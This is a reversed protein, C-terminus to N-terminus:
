KYEILPAQCGLLRDRMFMIGGWAQPFSASRLVSGAVPLCRTCWVRTSGEAAHAASLDDVCGMGLSGLGTRSGSM